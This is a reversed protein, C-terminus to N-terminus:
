DSNSVPRVVIQDKQNGASGTRWRRSTRTDGKAAKEPNFDIGDIEMVYNFLANLFQDSEWRTDTVGIEEQFQKYLDDTIIPKNLNKEVWDKIWETVEGNGGQGEVRKILVANDRRYNTQNILGNNLYKKICYFLYNYFENWDKDTFDDEFLNKGLLDKPEKGLKGWKNWFNGFSVIHQRADYSLGNGVILHNTTCGMKPKKDKPIVFKNKNKGEVTMDDAIISFMGQMDFDPNLDNVVVLRTETTVNSFNFRASENLSKQFSKGDVFAVSKLHRLADSMILSKGNRGESKDSTSDADEFVVLKQVDPPNYNHCLYGIATELPELSQKIGDNNNKIPNNKKFPIKNSPTVNYTMAYRVFDYFLGKPKGDIVKINRQIIAGEWVAGKGKFTSFKTERISNKTIKVVTNKFPIYCANKEDRFIKLHEFEDSEQEVHKPLDLLWKEINGVSQNSWYDIFADKDEEDIDADEVYNTVWSRIAAPSFTKLIADDDKTITIKANRDPVTLFSFFGHSELFKRFRRKHIKVSGKKDIEWFKDEM